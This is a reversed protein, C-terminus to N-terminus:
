FQSSHDGYAVCIWFVKRVVAARHKKLVFDIIFWLILSLGWVSWSILYEYVGPMFFQGQYLSKGIIFSAMGVLVIWFATTKLKLTLTESKERDVTNKTNSEDKSCVGSNVIEKSM